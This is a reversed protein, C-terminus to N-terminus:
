SPPPWKGSHSCEVKPPGTQATDRSYLFTYMSSHVACASMAASSSRRRPRCRATAATRPSKREHRYLGGGAGQWGNGRHHVGLECAHVRLDVPQKRQRGHVVGCQPAAELGAAAAGDGGQFVHVQVQVEVGRALTQEPQRDLVDLRRQQRAQERFLLAFEVALDFQDAQAAGVTEDVGAEVQKAADFRRQVPKRVVDQAGGDGACPQLGVGADVLEHGRDLGFEVPIPLARRVELAFHDHVGVEARHHHDRVPAEVDVGVNAQRVRAHLWQHLVLDAGVDDGAV